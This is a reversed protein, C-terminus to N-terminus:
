NRRIITVKEESVEEYNKILESAVNLVEIYNDLLSLNKDLQKIRSELIQEFMNLKETTSVKGRKNNLIELRKENLVKNAKHQSMNFNIEGIVYSKVDTNIFDLNMIYQNFMNKIVDNAKEILTQGEVDQGEDYMRRTNPDYLVNYAKNINKFTEEDGGVDPHNIKVKERFARKIQEQTADKSIGLIYYFDVM